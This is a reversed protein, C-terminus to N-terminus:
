RVRNCFIIGEPICHNLHILMIRSAFVSQFYIYKPLQCQGDQISDLRKACLFM